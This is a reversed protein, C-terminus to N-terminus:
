LKSESIKNHDHYRYGVRLSAHSLGTTGGDHGDYTNSYTAGLGLDFGMYLHNSPFYNWGFSVMAGMQTRSQEISENTYGSPNYMGRGTSFVLSPCISYKAKRTSNLNTYIKIGPALYFMPEHKTENLGTISNTQQNNNFTLSVPVFLSVWGTKDLVREYSLGIGYGNETIEIPAFSVINNNIATKSKSNANSNNVGIRDNNEEFIDESGNQYKIKVVDQKPISYEPGDPNDFKKFTISEPTVSRVKAEIIEGNKKFIRDQAFLTSFLFVCLLTLLSGKFKM